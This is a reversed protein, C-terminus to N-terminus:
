TPNEDNNETFTLTNKGNNLLTATVKINTINKAPVLMSTERIGGIDMNMAKSEKNKDQVCIRLEKQHSYFNDKIFPCVEGNVESIDVYEVAKRIHKLKFIDATKEIRAVFDAADGIIVATDGFGSWVRDNIIDGLLIEEDYPIVFYLLCFINVRDLESNTERHFGKTFIGVEEM